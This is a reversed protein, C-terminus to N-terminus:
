PNQKDAPSYGDVIWSQSPQKYLAATWDPLSEFETNQLVMLGKEESVTIFIEVWEESYKTDDVRLNGNWVILLIIPILLGIERKNLDTLCKNEEKTMPGLMLRKYLWLM